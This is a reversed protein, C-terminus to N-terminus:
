GAELTAPKSGGVRPQNEVGWHCNQGRADEQEAAKRFWQAAQVYDRAVGHGMAYCIGLNCQASAYGQKAAKRYWKLAEAYSQTVGQGKTYCLALGNQGSPDEQEAAKHFWQAAQAYDQAIGRGLAYCRGLAAQAGAHGQEAAKLYSRAEDSNQLPNVTPTVLASPSARAPITLQQGIVLRGNTFTNVEYIAKLPVGFQEAIKMLTDGSRVTYKEYDMGGKRPAISATATTATPPELRSPSRIATGSQTPDEDSIMYRLLNGQRDEPIRQTERYLTLMIECVRDSRQMWQDEQALLELDDSSLKSSIGAFDKEAQNRDLLPHRGTAASRLIQEIVILNNTSSLEFFGRGWKFDPPALKPSLVAVCSRSHTGKFRVLTEVWLDRVARLAQDSALPLYKVMLNETTLRITQQAEVVSRGSQIAASFDNVMKLYAAPEIEKIASFGPLGRLAEDINSSSSGRLLGGSAAFRDGFSESTIVGANQMEEITPYWMNAPETALARDIFEGSIGASRMAQRISENGTQKQDDTMGPLSPGHFGIKARAAMVREKGAVFVLTAASLCEEPTYTILGRERILRAM